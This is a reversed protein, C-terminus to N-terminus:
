LRYLGSGIVLRTPFPQDVVLRMGLSDVASSAASRKAYNAMASAQTERFLNSHALLYPTAIVVSGVAFLTATLRVADMRKALVWFPFALFAYLGFMLVDQVRLYAMAYASVGALAVALLLNRLTPRVLCRVIGWLLLANLATTFCDRILVAGFLIFLGNFAFLTGVLRLRRADNGFFERATRVTLSGTLGMVFANFMVGTYPGFELGLWWALKYIQQWAVVALPSNHLPMNEMTTFQPGAAIMPFFSVLADPTSQPNNFVALSYCQALGGAFVCVAYTSVFVVREPRRNQFMLRVAALGALLLLSAVLLAGPTGNAYGQMGGGAVLMLPIPLRGASLPLGNAEALKPKPLTRTIM